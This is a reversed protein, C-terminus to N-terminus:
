ADQTGRPAGGPNRPWFAWAANLVCLAAFFWGRVPSDFYTFMAVSVGGIIPIALIQWTLFWWPKRRRADDLDLGATLRRAM